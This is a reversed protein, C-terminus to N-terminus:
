MEHSPCKVRRAFSEVTNAFIPIRKIGCQTAVDQKFPPKQGSTQKTAAPQAPTSTPEPIPNSPFVQLELGESRLQGSYDFAARRIDEAKRANNEVITLEELHPQDPRNLLAFGAGRLWSKVATLTEINGSGSGILISALHKKRLRGLCWFLERALVFQGVSGMGAIVVLRKADRPDPLLFPRGLEGRVIGRQTLQTVLLKDHYDAMDQESAVAPDPPQIEQDIAATIAEDLALEAYVPQV